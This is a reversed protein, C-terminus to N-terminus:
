KFKSMCSNATAKFICWNERLMPSDDFFNYVHIFFDGLDELMEGLELDARGPTPRTAWCKCVRGCDNFACPAFARPLLHQAVLYCAMIRLTDTVALSPSEERLAATVLNFLNAGIALWSDAGFDSIIDGLMANLKRLEEKNERAQKRVARTLAEVDFTRCVAKAAAYELSTLVIM